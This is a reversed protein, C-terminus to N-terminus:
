PKLHRHMKRIRTIDRLMRMGDRLFRIKSGPRHYWHVAAEKINFGLKQAIYLVEIDFSWGNIECKSFIKKAAEGRFLKFGCQTDTIDRVALIRIVHNLARGAMERYLPQRKMLHSGQIPRSAIVIDAGEDIFHWFGDLEDIPTALDADCILYYDATSHIIGTRVAHGKGKNHNYSLIQMWPHKQAFYRCKSLTSDTSGDDVVLAKCTYDQKEIYLGIATLSDLIRAAENYAPIVIILRPSTKEETM